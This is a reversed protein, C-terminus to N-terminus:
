RWPRAPNLHRAQFAGKASLAAFCLSECIDERELDPYETLIEHESVGGNLMRLVTAVTIRSGRVCAVGGMQNPNVTMRKFDPAQM